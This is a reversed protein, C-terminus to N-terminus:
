ILTFLKVTKGIFFQMLRKLDAPHFFMDNNNVIKALLFSISYRKLHMKTMQLNM